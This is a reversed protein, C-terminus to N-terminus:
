EDYVADRLRASRITVNVAQFAIGKENLRGIVDHSLILTCNTQGYETTIFGDSNREYKCDIEDILNVTNDESDVFGLPIFNSYGYRRGVEIDLDILIDSDFKELESRPIFSSVAYDGRYSHDLEVVCFPEASINKVTIVTDGSVGWPCIYFTEAWPTLPMENFDLTLTFNPPDGKDPVYNWKWEKWWEVDNNSGGVSASVAGSCKRGSIEFDANITSIESSDLESISDFPVALTVRDKGEYLSTDGVTLTYSGDGNDIWKDKETDAISNVSIGSVAATHMVSSDTQKYKEDTKTEILAISSAAILSVACLAFFLVASYGKCFRKLAAKLEEATQFRKEPAFEMCRGIIAAFSRPLGNLGDNTHGTVLEKLLAGVSYIDSRVDTQAYGFQEPPAAAPTGMVQTDRDSDPAYERSIGFDVIFIEGDPAAVINDAKIDRHIVPPDKEHMQSLISCVSIGIQAARKCSVPGNKRIQEGLSEGEIFQRILYATGDKEFCAYVDPIGKGAIKSLIRAENEILEASGTKLFARRQCVKDYVIYSSTKGGSKVCSIIEYEDEAKESLATKEKVGSM